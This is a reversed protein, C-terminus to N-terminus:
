VKHKGTGFNKKKNIFSSVLPLHSLFMYLREKNRYTPLHKLSLLLMKNMRGHYKIFEFHRAMNFSCEALVHNKINDPIKQSVSAYKENQFLNM